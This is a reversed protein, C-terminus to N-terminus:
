RPRGVRTYVAERDQIARLRGPTLTTDRFEFNYTAGGRGTDGGRVNAALTEWQNGTLVPEPRGTGNWIPPNWGPQLMGGADMAIHLHNRHLADQDGMTTRRQGRSIYYGGRKTTHILELVRPQMNLFFQGLADQEFGMWDVARGSGHWLPDGARYSNGFSNPIGSAHVLDVINHWVGTDGRQAWPGPPWPLFGPGAGGPGGSTAGFFTKVKDTLQQVVQRPAALAVKVMDNDQPILEFLQDALRKIAEMPNSLFDTIGSFVDKAKSVLSSFFDGVAGGTAFRPLVGAAAAQRLRYMADQGGVAAVEDATWVHEGTSLLAPISDSTATGAGWVAGGRRFGKPLDIHVDDPKVKFAKAIKNYGALLGDNLVTEIIFKIPKKAADVIVDWAKGLLELGKKFPPLVKEEIVTALYVFFPKIKEWVPRIATEWLWGFIAAMIKVGIQIIGFAVQAIASLVSFAVGLVQFVPRLV